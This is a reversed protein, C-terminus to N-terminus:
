VIRKTPLTLHTYSVPSTHSYFFLRNTLRLLANVVIGMPDARPKECADKIVFTLFNITGSMCSKKPFFGPFRKILNLGPRYSPLVVLKISFIKLYNIVKHSRHLYAHDCIIYILIM